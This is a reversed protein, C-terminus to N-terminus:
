PLWGPLAGNVVMQVPPRDPAATDYVWLEPQALVAELNFRTFVVYRGSPDWNFDLNNYSPDDTIPHLDGSDIELLTFQTGFGDTRDLRRRGFALYRGDPSWAPWQDEQPNDFLDAIGSEGSFSAIGLQTFFGRGILHIDSYVMQSGDPSFTGVDGMQSPILVNSGTELDLVRIVDKNADFFAIRGGDLSWAPGYGLIQNDGYIPLTEARSFDWIWVRSPGLGGDPAIEQREYAM